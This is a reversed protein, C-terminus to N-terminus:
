ARRVRSRRARTKRAPADHSKTRLPAMFWAVSMSMDGPSPDPTWILSALEDFLANIKALRDPSPRMVCRFFWHNRAAGALKWDPARFGLAYDKGAHSAAIHGIKAMVQRNAPSEAARALRVLGGPAAYLVAPRGRTASASTRRVLGVKEMRSLHGYVSTANKGISSALDRVSMPGHAGLRDVIDLRAASALVRLQDKRTVWYIERRKKLSDRNIKEAAALM